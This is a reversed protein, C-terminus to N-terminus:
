VLVCCVSDTTTKVRREGAFTFDTIYFCVCLSLSLTGYMNTVSSLFFINGSVRGPILLAEQLWCGLSKM